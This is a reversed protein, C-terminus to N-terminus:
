VDEADSLKLRKPDNGKNELEELKRKKVRNGGHETGLSVTQKLSPAQFIINSGIGKKKSDPMDDPYM